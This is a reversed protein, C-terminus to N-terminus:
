WWSSDSKQEISVDAFYGLRMVQRIDMQISRPDFLAGVKTVMAAKIADVEVRRNGEIEIAAVTPGSSSAPEPEVPAPAAAPAAAPAPAVAPAPAAAPAAAGEAPPAAVQPEESWVLAPGALLCVVVAIPLTSRV